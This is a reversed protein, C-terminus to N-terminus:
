EDGFVKDQCTQCLGSIAAERRAADSRFPTQSQGCSVCSGAALAASRSRGFLANSLSDLSREVNPTKM